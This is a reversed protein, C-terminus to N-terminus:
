GLPLEMSKLYNGLGQEVLFFSLVIIQICCTLSKTKADSAKLYNIMFPDLAQIPGPIM